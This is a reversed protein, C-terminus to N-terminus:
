KNKMILKTYKKNIILQTNLCSLDNIKKMATTTMTQVQNRAFNSVLSRFTMQYDQHILLIRCSMHVHIHSTPDPCSTNYRKMQLPAYGHDLRVLYFEKEGILGFLRDDM